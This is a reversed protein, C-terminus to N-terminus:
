AIPTLKGLSSFKNIRHRVPDLYLCTSVLNNVIDAQSFNSDVQNTSKKNNLVKKRTDSFKYFVVNGKILTSALDDRWFVNIGGCNCVLSEVDCAGGDEADGRVSTLFRKEVGLDNIPKLSKFLSM